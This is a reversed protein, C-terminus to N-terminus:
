NLYFSIQTNEVFCFYKYIQLVFTNNIGLFLVSMSKENTDNSKIDFILKYDLEKNLQSATQEFFMVEGYGNIVPTEWEQANLYNSIVIIWLCIWSRKFFEM